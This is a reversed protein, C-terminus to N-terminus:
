NLLVPPCHGWREPPWFSLGSESALIEQDSGLFWSCESSLIPISDTDGLEKQVKLKWSKMEKREQDRGKGERKEGRGWGRNEKVGRVARLEM